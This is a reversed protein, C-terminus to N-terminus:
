RVVLGVGRLASEFSRCGSVGFRGWGAGGGGEGTHSAVLLFSCLCFCKYMYMPLPPSASGWDGARGVSCGNAGGFM